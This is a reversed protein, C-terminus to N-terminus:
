YFAKNAIRLFYRNDSYDVVGEVSIENTPMIDAAYTATPLTRISITNGARDVFTRYTTIMEDGVRDCWSLGCEEDCIRINELCILASIDAVGIESFQKIKPEFDECVGLVRIYRGIMEEEINAIPFDGTSPAGLEIKGGIRALMLGNCFLEVESYVPIKKALNYSNIAVELGGSRDAIVISKNFEGLWDNAVVVGRLTCDSTIRYHDGKCMSKLYAVSIEGLPPNSISEGGSPNGSCGCLVILSFLTILLRYIM